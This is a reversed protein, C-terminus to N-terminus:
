IYKERQNNPYVIELSSHPLKSDSLRTIYGLEIGGKNKQKNKKLMGKNECEKAANISQDRGKFPNDLVTNM